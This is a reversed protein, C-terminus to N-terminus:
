PPGPPPLPPAAKRGRRVASGAWRNPSRSSPAPSQQRDHRTTTSAEHAHHPQNPAELRARDDALRGGDVALGLSGSERRLAYFM